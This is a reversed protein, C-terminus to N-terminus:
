ARPARVDHEDFSGRAADPHCAACNAAAPANVTGARALVKRHERVYWQAQTIRTAAPDYRKGGPPQAGAVLYTRIRAAAAADVSADVGFHRDLGGVIREWAPAALLQPAYPLHCSGCEAAYVPDAPAPSAHGGAMADAVLFASFALGFTWATVDFLRRTFDRYM